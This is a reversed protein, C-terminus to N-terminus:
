SQFTVRMFLWGMYLGLLISSGLLLRWFFFIYSVLDGRRVIGVLGKLTCDKTYIVLRFGVTLNPHQHLVWIDLPSELARPLIYCVCVFRKLFRFLLFSLDYSYFEFLICLIKIWTCTSKYFHSHSLSVAQRLPKWSFILCIWLIGCKYPVRWNLPQHMVADCVASLGLGSVELQTQLPLSHMIAM